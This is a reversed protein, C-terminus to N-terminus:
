PSKKRKGKRSLLFQRLQDIDQSVDYIERTIKETVFYNHRMVYDFREGYPMNNLDIFSKGGCAVCQCDARIDKLLTVNGLKITKLNMPHLYKNHVASIIWSASDFSVKKFFHNAMYGCLGINVFSSSGLVHVQKVGMQHFKMFFLVIDKISLHRVPFSVGDFKVDKINDLFILLQKLNYAQASIYYQVNPCDRERLAATEHAWRVNTGLKRNFHYEPDDGKKLMSLPFDLAIM